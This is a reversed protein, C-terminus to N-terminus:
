RIDVIESFPRRERVRGDSAAYGLLVLAQPEYPSPLSLARRVLDPCYMPAAMWCTSLGREHSLLFLTQLVSGVSQVAMQFELDNRARDPYVTLGDRVLSVLIVVPASSIRLRSRGTVRRIEDEALGDRTLEDRLREAMLDALRTKDADHALVTFRWPQSNHPSPAWIADRLLDEVTEVPVAEPRFARISRRERVADAVTSTRVTM